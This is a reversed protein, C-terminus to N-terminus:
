VLSTRNPSFFFSKELVVLTKGYPCFSILLQLFFFSSSLFFSFLNIGIDRTQKGREKKGEEKKKKEKV